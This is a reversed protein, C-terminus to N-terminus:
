LIIIWLVVLAVAIVIKFKYYLKFVEIHQAKETILPCSMIAFLLFFIGTLIYKAGEKISLGFSGITTLLCFVTVIWLLMKKTLLMFKNVVRQIEEKRRGSDLNRQESLAELRAKERAKEELFIQNEIKRQEEYNKKENVRKDNIEKNVETKEVIGASSLFENLYSGIEGSIFIFEKNDINLLEESVDSIWNPLGIVSEGFENEGMFIEESNRRQAVSIMNDCQVAVTFDFSDSIEKLRLYAFYFIGGAMKLTDCASLVEISNDKNLRFITNNGRISCKKELVIDSNEEDDHCEIDAYEKLFDRDWLIIGNEKALEKAAQTFYNNTIVAGVHCKYYNKGALVEQVAKNGVTQSYRKCQIAYRVGDKEAIIDVGQDGSGKTLQMNMYGIKELVMSVFVEFDEGTMYDFKGNYMKVRDM